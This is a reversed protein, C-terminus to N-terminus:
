RLKRKLRKIKGKSSEKGASDWRLRKVVELDPTAKSSERTKMTNITM